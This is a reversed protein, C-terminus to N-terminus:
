QKNLRLVKSTLVGLIGLLLIYLGVNLAPAIRLKYLAEDLNKTAGEFKGETYLRRSESLQSEIGLSVITPLFSNQQMKEKTNNLEEKYEKVRVSKNYASTNLAKLRREALDWKKQNALEEAEEFDNMYTQFLKPDQQNELSEINSHIENYLHRIEGIEKKVSEIKDLLRKTDVKSFKGEYLLEKENDISSSLGKPEFFSYNSDIENVKEESEALLRHKGSWTGTEVGKRRLFQTMNKGTVRSAFFNIQNNMLERQNSFTINRRQMLNYVSSVDAETNNFMQKVILESYRYGVRDKDTLLNIREGGAELSSKQCPIEISVIDPEDVPSWESIFEKNFYCSEISKNVIFKSPAFSRVDYGNEKMVQHSVHSATGEEWWWDPSQTLIKDSYGHVIEHLFTELSQEEIKGLQTASLEINGGYYQGAVEEGIRGSEIPLYKVDFQDPTKIGTEEEVDDLLDQVEDTQKKVKQRYISPFSVNLNGSQYSTLKPTNATITFFIESRGSQNYSNLIIKNEKVNVNEALSTDYEWNVPYDVEVNSAGLCSSTPLYQNLVSRNGYVVAGNEVSYKFSVEYVDTSQIESRTTFELKRNLNSTIESDIDPTRSNSNVDEITSSKPLILSFKSGSPYYYGSRPIISINLHNLTDGDEHITTDGDCYLRSTGTSLLMLLLVLLLFYKSIKFQKIVSSSKAGMVPM